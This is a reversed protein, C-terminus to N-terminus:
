SLRITNSTVRGIGNLLMKELVVAPPVDQAFLAWVPEFGVSGLEYFGHLKTCFNLYGSEVYCKNFSNSPCQLKEDPRDDQCLVCKQWNIERCYAGQAEQRSAGLPDTVRFPREETMAGM